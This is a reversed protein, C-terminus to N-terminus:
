VLILVFVVLLCVVSSRANSTQPTRVTSIVHLAKTKCCTVTFRIERIFSTMLAFFFVTVSVNKSCGGRNCRVGYMLRSMTKFMKVLATQTSYIVGCNVSWATGHDSSEVKTRACVCLLLIRFCSTEIKSSKKTYAPNLENKNRRVWESETFTHARIGVNASSQCQMPYPHRLVVPFGAINAVDDPM